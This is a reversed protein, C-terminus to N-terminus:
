STLSLISFSPSIPAKSDNSQRWQNEFFAHWQVQRAFLHSAYSLKCFSVQIELITKLSSWLGFVNCLNDLVGVIVCLYFYFILSNIIKGFIQFYNIPCRSIRSFEHRGLLFGHIISFKQLLLSFLEFFSGFFMSYFFKFVAM